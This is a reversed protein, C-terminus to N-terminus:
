KKKRAKKIVPRSKGAARTARRANGPYDADHPQPPAIRDLLQKYEHIFRMAEGSGFLPLPDIGAGYLARGEGEAGIFFLVASPMSKQLAVVVDRSPLTRALFLVFFPAIGAGILWGAESDDCGLAQAVHARVQAVIVSDLSETSPWAQDRIAISEPPSAPYWAKAILLRAVQVGMANLFVARLGREAGAFRRLGELVEGSPLAHMAALKAFRERQERPVRGAVQWARPSLGRERTEDFFASVDGEMMLPQLLDRLDREVATVDPEVNHPANPGDLADRLLAVLTADDVSDISIVHQRTDPPPKSGSTLAVAPFAPQAWKRFEPVLWEHWSGRRSRVNASPGLVFVSGCARRARDELDTQWDVQGAASANEIPRVRAKTLLGDVRRGIERDGEPSRMAASVIIDPDHEAPRLAWRLFGGIADTRVAYLKRKERHAVSLDIVGAIAGEIVVPAGGLGKPELHQVDVGIEIRVPQPAREAHLHVDIATVSGHLLAPSSETPMATTCATNLAVPEYRVPLGSDALASHPVDLLALAVASDSAAVKARFPLGGVFVTCELKDTEESGRGFLSLSTLVRYPAVLCGLGRVNEDTQIEVVADLLASPAAEHAAGAGRRLRYADGALTRIVVESWGAPLELPEGSRVAVTRAGTAGHVDWVLELVVPRTKPAEVIMASTEDAAHAERFRLATDFAECVLQTRVALAKAPLLWSAEPPLARSAGQPLARADGGVRAIAGIVLAIAADTERALAPLRPIARIAWRAVELGRADDAAMAKMAPRLLADIRAAAAPRAQLALYTIEEELQLSAPWGAHLKRTVRYARELAGLEGFASDAVLDDRLRRCVATDLVIGSSGSSEVLPSFWVDAEIGAHTHPLLSLRLARLLAADVRVALSAYRALEAAHPERQTLKEIRSRARADVDTM